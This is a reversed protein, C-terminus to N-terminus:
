QSSRFPLDFEDLQTTKSRKPKRKLKAQKAEQKEVVRRNQSAQKASPKRTRQLRILTTATATSTPASSTVLKDIDLFDGSSDSQTAEIEQDSLEENESPEVNESRASDLEQPLQGQPINDDDSSDIYGGFEPVIQSKQQSSYIYDDLPSKCKTSKELDEREDNDDSLQQEQHFYATAVQDQYQSRNLSEVAALEDRKEQKQAERQAKRRQRVAEQEQQDAVERGTLARKRGPGFVLNILPVVPDPLRSPMDRLRQLKKDQRESLTDSITKFALAFNEAQGPPLSKHKEAILLAIDLILQSGRRAFRDGAYRDEAVVSQSYDQNDLRITWQEQLVSPGDILWRPHFINLPIALKRVYFYAMWCKCPLRYRLPLQCREQCGKETDFEFDKGAEELEDLIIKAKLLEPACLNLAYETIHRIALKFFEQDILRPEYIRNRNIRYEYDDPLSELQECIRMIAESVSLNKNLNSKVIPHSGEVRQTSYVGLNRYFSTYARCFQREKPQYYNVLYEKEDVRLNLILKTRAVELAEHDPAKIWSWIMDVLEDRREKRYGKAILRRQIAQAAHWECFQLIITNLHPGVVIPEVDRVWDVIITQSDTEYKPRAEPATPLPYDFVDRSTEPQIVKEKGKATSKKMETEEAEKADQAAKRAVAATLGKSFDGAIVAPGPCDYFFHTEWIKMLFEFTRAAENLSFSHLFSFTKGTNDIGIVSQLLLRKTNTNFTADTEAVMDSVFRRAQRIQEQTWWAICRIVRDTRSGAVDLIYEEDVAVHVNKGELHQLLMRAEEQDSLQGIM